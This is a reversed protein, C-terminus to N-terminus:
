GWSDGVTEEADVPVPALIKSGEECMIRKVAQAIESAIEEPCEVLIEDHIAGIIHAEEPLEKYIRVLSLKTIDASTGQDASNYFETAKAMTKKQFNPWFRKRGTITKQNMVLLFDIDGKATHVYYKDYAPATTTVIEASNEAKLKGAKVDWIIAVKIPKSSNKFEQECSDVLIGYYSDRSQKNFVDRGTEKWSNLHWRAIGKYLNFFETRVMEAEELTMRVGYNFYAYDKLTPASMGYILGFNVAKAKQRDDKTVEEMPKHSTKSATLKHLDVGNQIAQIMAEDMALRAMVRMEIASFDVRVLKFGKKTKFLTRFVRGDGRKPVQQGNPRSSSMRGTAARAQNYSPYLRGGRGGFEEFQDIFNLHKEITRYKLLKECFPHELTKLTEVDSSDVSFGIKNLYKTIQAPSRFNIDVGADGGFLTVQKSRQKGRAEKELDELAQKLEVKKSVRLSEAAEWDFPMGYFEIEVIAPITNFELKATGGLENRDLLTQQIHQIPLLVEVDRAAYKLQEETLEKSGWNSRQMDKELKFGLHRM